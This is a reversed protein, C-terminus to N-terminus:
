TRNKKSPNWRRNKEIAEELVNFFEPDSAHTIKNRDVVIWTDGLIGIKSDYRGEAVCIDFSNDDRKTLFVDTGERTALWTNVLQWLAGDEKPPINM